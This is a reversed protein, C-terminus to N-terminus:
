KILEKLERILEAERDDFKHGSLVLADVLEALTMTAKNSQEASM